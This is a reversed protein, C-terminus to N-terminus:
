LKRQPRWQALWPSYVKILNRTIKNKISPTLVRMFQKAKEEEKSVFARTFRLLSTFKAEYQAVNMSGQVLNIFEMRLAEKTTDTFYQELFAKRCPEWKKAM